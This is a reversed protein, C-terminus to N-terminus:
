LPLTFAKKIIYLYCKLVEVATITTNKTKQYVGIKQINRYFGPLWLVSKLGMGLIVFFRLTFRQFVNKHKKYVYMLSIFYNTYARIQYKSSSSGGLHITSAKPYYITRFDNKRAMYGLDCDEHYFFLNEDLMGISRLKDAKIILAALSLYDVERIIDSEQNFAFKKSILDKFLKFNLVKIILGSLDLIHLFTKFVTPFDFWSRQLSQDHNLLKPGLIDVEPNSNLYNVIKDISNELIITDSNLLFIFKGKAIRIGANNGRSFGINEPLAILKVQTFLSQVMNQSDDVSNNDVVIVEIPTQPFNVFISELCNKLLLSTNYNIIIISLEM